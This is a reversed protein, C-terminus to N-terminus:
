PNELNETIAGTTVIMRFGCYRVSNEPIDFEVEGLRLKTVGNYMQSKENDVLARKVDFLLQELRQIHTDLDSVTSIAGQVLWSRNPKCKNSSNNVDPSEKFPIVCVFPFSLGDVNKELKSAYFPLAGERVTIDYDYGNVMKISTLKAVINTKFFDYLITTM